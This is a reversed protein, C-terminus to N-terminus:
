HKGKVHIFFKKGVGGCKHAMRLVDYLDGGYLETDCKSYDMTEFRGCSVILDFNFSKVFREITKQLGNAFQEECCIGFCGDNFMTLGKNFCGVYDPHHSLSTFLNNMKERAFAKREASFNEIGDVTVVVMFFHGLTNVNQARKFLTKHKM